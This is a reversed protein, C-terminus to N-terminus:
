QLKIFNQTFYRSGKQMVLVYKGNPLHSVGEFLDNYGKEYGVIRRSFVQGYLNQVSITYAGKEKIFLSGKLTTHVPHQIYIINTIIDERSISVVNSQYLKGDSSSGKLRYFSKNAPKLDEFMYDSTTALEPASRVTGITKFNLGDTSQQVEFKTNLDSVANWRLVNTTATKWVSFNKVQLDLVSYANIAKISYSCNSGAFGDIAVYVKTHAALVPTTAQVFNGSGSECSLPTFNGCTGTFFGIQFGQVNNGSGNDCAIGSINIITHGESAVYYYYFATNEISTACLQAPAVEASPKHCANNDSRLTEDIATAGLCNINSPPYSSASIEISGPAATKIRLFYTKNGQMVFNESPAWLGSGDEFCMSSAAQLNSNMNGSCSTYLAVECAGGDSATISFLPCNGGADTTFKFWSVPTNGSGTCLVNGGIATSTVYSRIIGDLPSNTSSSCDPGQTFALVPNLCLVKIFFTKAKM